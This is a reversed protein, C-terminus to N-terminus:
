GKRPMLLYFQAEHAVRGAMFGAQQGSGAFYDGRAPGLIASGTDQAVMLRALPHTEGPLPQRTTVYLPSGFTHILRDVALSRGASLPVKAAAVPGDDPLLGAVERFFIFSRNQALFAQLSAEDQAEMWSRLRDATMETTSVGPRQRLVQGLSTYEHGTKAAYTVRMISGDSMDLRASGQVHIFFADVLSSLYCIELGKGALAGSQIAGRDFYPEIGAATKRAFRMGNPLSAPRNADDIDILDDPRCYLPFRFRETLERSAAVVPEFYGTLLDPGGGLANPTFHQEFFVKATEADTPGLALAAKAIRALDGGDVGGQRTPYPKEAMRGASKLFVEFAAAHDDESWGPLDDFDVPQLAMDDVAVAM